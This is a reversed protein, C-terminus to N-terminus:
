QRLRQRQKFSPFSSISACVNEEEEVDVATEMVVVQFLVEVVVVVELVVAM